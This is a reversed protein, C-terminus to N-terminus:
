AALRAEIAEAMRRSLAASVAKQRDKRNMSSFEDSYIGLYMAQLHLRLEDPNSKAMEEVHVRMENAVRQKIRGLKRKQQNKVRREHKREAREAEGKTHIGLGKVTVIGRDTEYVDYGDPIAKNETVM